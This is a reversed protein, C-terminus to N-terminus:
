EPMLGQIFEDKGLRADGDQDMRRIIAMLEGDDALYGHKRLFNKLNKADIYGYNWDDIEAYAM